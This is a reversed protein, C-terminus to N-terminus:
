PYGGTHSDVNVNKKSSVTKIQFFLQCVFWSEKSETNLLYKRSFSPISEQKLSFLHSPSWPLGTTLVGCKWKTSTNLSGGLQMAALFFFFLFLTLFMYPLLPKLTTYVSWVYWQSYFETWNLETAWDHGVRQSGMFRLVGPRGTRWWSGSNVWVWRGDLWHHWGAMEDETTGKEKQGWDRGADSDKGILCGKAHPADMPNELCSYQLPNGNGEGFGFELDM